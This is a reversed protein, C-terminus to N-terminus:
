PGRNDRIWANIDVAHGNRDTSPVIAGLEEVLARAMVRKWGEDGNRTGSSFLSLLPTNGNDAAQNVDAGYAVLLRPRLTRRFICDPHRACM